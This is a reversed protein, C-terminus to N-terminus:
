QKLEKELQKLEKDLNNDRILKKVRLDMINIEKKKNDLEALQSTFSKQLKVARSQEDKAKAQEQEAKITKDELGKQITKNQLILSNYKKINEDQETIKKDLADKLANVRIIKTNFEKVKSLVEESREQSLKIIAALEQANNKVSADIKLKEKKFDLVKQQHDSEKLKLNTKGNAQLDSEKKNKIENEDVLLERVSIADQAKKIDDEAITINRKRARIDDDLSKTAKFLVKKKDQENEIQDKIKEVEGSSQIKASELARLVTELERKKRRLALLETPLVNMEREIERRM